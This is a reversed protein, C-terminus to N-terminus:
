GRGVVNRLAEALRVFDDARSYAHCSVRLLLHGGHPTVKTEIGHRWLPEEIARARAHLDVDAAGVSVSDPLRVARMWGDGPVVAGGVAAAVHDAGAVVCAEIDGSRALIARAQDVVQEAVMLPGPDGTGLWSSNAPFDLDDYWAPIVSGITPHHRQDVVLMALSPPACAWKHLNGTWADAPPLATAPDFQGPVHAGDVVVGVDRDRAMAVLDHVPLPMATASAVQDVVLGVPGHPRAHDIADGIRDLVASPVFPDVTVVEIRAGTARARRDLNARVSPYAQDTTVITADSDWPLVRLAVDMGVTANPVLTTESVRAGVLGAAAAIAREHALPFDRVFFKMPNAAVRVRAAAVSEATARTIGGFSGHNAHVVDDALAWQRTSGFLTDVPTGGAAAM